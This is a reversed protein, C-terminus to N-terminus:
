GTTYRGVPGAIVNGAAGDTARRTQAASPGPEPGWLDVPDVWLPRQGLTTAPGTRLVQRRIPLLQELRLQRVSRRVDAPTPPFPYDRFPRGPRYSGFPRNCALSGDRGPCGDTMFPLGGLIVAELDEGDIDLRAIRGKDDFGVQEPEMRGGELLHKVLQLRRWRVLSPPRARAMRSDPEPYFSFLYAAVGLGKLRQVTTIIDADTEGLGVVLHCNVRGIGFVAVAAELIRWYMAWSLGGRVGRGRRLEFVRESAADLGVGIMDAGATKLEALRQRNFLNPAILVSLPTELAAKLRGVVDLTDGYAQGHTVMSLCVRKVESGATTLRDLVIGAPVVPWEVRIFSKDGARGPRERALGCYACNALCTQPYTLLLNACTPRADRYFRGSRLGLAIASALSISVYDPSYM